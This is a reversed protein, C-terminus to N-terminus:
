DSLISENETYDGETLHFMKYTTYDFKPGFVERLISEADVDDVDIGYGYMNCLGVIYSLAKSNLKLDFGNTDNIDLGDQTIHNIIRRATLEGLEADKRLAKLSLNLDIAHGAPYVTNKVGASLVAISNLQGIKSDSSKEDSLEICLKWYKITKEAPGDVYYNLIGLLYEISGQSGSVNSIMELHDIYEEYYRETWFLMDEYYDNEPTKGSLLYLVKPYAKYYGKKGALIMHELAEDNENNSLLVLGKEYENKASKRLEEYGIDRLERERSYLEKFCEQREDINLKEFYLIVDEIKGERILKDAEKDLAKIAALSEDSLFPPLFEIKQKWEHVARRSRDGLTINEKCWDYDKRNLNNRATKVCESIIPRFDYDFDDTDYKETIERSIKEFKGRDDITQISNIDITLENLLKELNVFETRDNEPLTYGLVTALCDKALDIADTDKADAVSEYVQTMNNDMLSKRRNLEERFKRVDRHVKVAEKGLSEGYKEFRKELDDAEKVLRKIEIYNNKSVKQSTAVFRKGDTILEQRSKIEEKNRLEKEGKADVKKALDAHGYSRLRDRCRIYFREFSNMKDISQCYVSSSLWEDFYEVIAKDAERNLRKVTGECYDPINIGNAFISSPSLNQLMEMCELAKVVDHLEKSALLTEEIGGIQNSWTKEATVFAKFRIEALQNYPAMSEPLGYFSIMERLETHLRNAEALDRNDNIRKFIHQFKAEVSGTDVWLITSERFVKISLKKEEVANDRWETVTTRSGNYEIRINHWHNVIIVAIFMAATEESLGYPPACFTDFFENLKYSEEKEIRDSVANYINRAKANMPPVIACDTTLCKWSSANDTMFLAEIRNRVDVSADHITDENAKNSLLMRLIQCYYKQGNGNFNNAKTLLGDFHFSIIEPYIEEFVDMLALPLRKRMQITGGETVRERKKKLAEFANNLNEIVRERDKVYIQTYANRTAEDMHELVDYETLINKLMNDADNLLMVVISTGAFRRSIRQLDEILRYDSDKNVYVWILIGKPTAVNKAAKWATYYRDALAPTLDEALIVKQSFGWENTTIKHATGFNTPQNSSMGCAELISATNLLARVDTKQKSLLRRKMIKYDYAGKADETFDFCGSMEDFAMVAYEDVLIRLADDVQEASLGSCVMISLRADEYTRTNFRLARTVLNARLVTIQVSNLKQENKKLVNDFRICIDSRHRGSTEAALMETYLDGQMLESPMVLPIRDDLDEESIDGISQSILNMSSRNQLYDSLQTLMLVSVPHMPYIGEVVVKRFKEYNGWIGTASIWTGIQKFLSKWDEEKKAQWDVIKNFKSRDKRNILNAFVTELNSSIHYKESEDYRGIYRSLNRSQDVRLLYTKIDTQIFNIISLAGEANQSVEFIEQLANDGSKGGDTGSAYELFRGFEDFLIVVNDFDGNLGCYKSLIMELISKASIGEEWRIRQGTVMEYVDNVIEFADDDSGIGDRIRNILSEGKNMWGRAYAAKEFDGIRSQANLDFFRNATDVTRNLKKLESDDVGYLRLSKQTAKLIESHLNFDRIGNLMIVFNRDKCLLSIEKAAQPDIIRINSIITKYTEPMYTPGSFLQGLTVAFHSKGTGYDAIALSRPNVGEKGIKESLAKVLSVTDISDRKAEVGFYDKGHFVFNEAVKSAREPEYFWDAQVAGDFYLDKRFEIIDGLRM